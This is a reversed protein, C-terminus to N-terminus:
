VELVYVDNSAGVNERVPKMRESYGVRFGCLCLFSHTIIPVVGVPESKGYFATGENQSAGELFWYQGLLSLVLYGITPCYYITTSRPARFM